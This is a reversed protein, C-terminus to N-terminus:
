DGLVAFVYAERLDGSGLLTEYGVLDTFDNLM